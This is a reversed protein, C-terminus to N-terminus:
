KESGWKITFEGKEEVVTYDAPPLFLSPDPESRDINVLKRTSEGSRPDNDTSLVMVKLEPSRWSEHVVSFPRDNGESGAPYVTTFRTGEVLLGEMNQNELKEHTNKPADEAVAQAPAGSGGGALTVSGAGSMTATMTATTPAKRKLAEPAAMAQKHAVKNVSDLTYKVQEVPDVIEIIVPAESKQKRAVGGMLPRETRTRGASDRYLKRTSNERTIHTGDALTQVTTSTEEASYPAGAVVQGRQMPAAAGFHASGSYFGSSVSTQVSDQAVAAMAVLLTLGLLAHRSQM